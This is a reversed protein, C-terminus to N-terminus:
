GLAARRRRLDYLGEQLMWQDEESLTPEGDDWSLEDVLYNFTDRISVYASWRRYKEDRSRELMDLSFKGVLVLSGVILCAIGALFWWDSAIM